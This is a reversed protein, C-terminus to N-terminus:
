DFSINLDRYLNKGEEKYISLSRKKSSKQFIKDNEKLIKGEEVLKRVVEQIKSNRIIKKQYAWM